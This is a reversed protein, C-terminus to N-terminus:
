HFAHSFVPEFTLNVEIPWLIKNLKFTTNLARHMTKESCSRNIENEGKKRTCLSPVPETSLIAFISTLNRSKKKM